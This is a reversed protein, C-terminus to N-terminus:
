QKILDGSVTSLDLVAGEPCGVGFASSASLISPFINFTLTVRNSESGCPVNMDYVLTNRSLTGAINLTGGQGASTGTVVGGSQALTLTITESTRTGDAWMFNLVGNWVGTIDLDPIAIKEARWTGSAGASDSWTGSMLTDKVSGTDTQGLGDVTWSFTVNSGRVTGSLPYANGLTDGTGSVFEGGITDESRTLNFYDPGIQGEKGTVTHFTKWSGAVEAPPGPLTRACVKGSKGSDNGAADYASVTYCYETDITLGTDAYSLAQTFMLLVTGRYVKYGKVGGNDFSASWALDLESTSAASVTLGAPVSPPSPDPTNERNWPGQLMRDTRTQCPDSALVFTLTIGTIGFLYTGTVAGCSQSGGADTMSVQDRSSSFKGWVEVAGTQASNVIYTADSMFTVTSSGNGWTGQLPSPAPGPPNRQVDPVGGCTSVSLASVFLLLFRLSFRVAALKNKNM